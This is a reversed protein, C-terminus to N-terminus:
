EGRGAFIDSTRVFNAYGNRDLATNATHLEDYCPVCASWSTDPLVPQWPNEPDPDTPDWGADPSDPDMKEFTPCTIGDPLSVGTVFTIPTGCPCYDFIWKCDCCQMRVCGASASTGLLNYEETDLASKSRGSYPVSHILIDGTIWTAYQGYSRHILARWEYKRQLSYCGRRPTSIGTSCVFVQVAHTYEGADNKGYVIVVNQDTYVTLAYPYPDGSNMAYYEDPYDQAHVPVTRTRVDQGCDLEVTLECDEAPTYRQFPIEVSFDLSAGNELLFDNVTEVTEGDKLLRVTCLRKGGPRVGRVTLTFTAASADPTVTIADPVTLEVGSLGVDETPETLLPMGPTCDTPQAASVPIMKNRVALISLLLVLLAVGCLIRKEM